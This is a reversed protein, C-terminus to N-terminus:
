RNRSLLGYELSQSIKGNNQNLFPFIDEDSILTQEKLNVAAENDTEEITKEDLIKNTDDRIETIEEVIINNFIEDSEAIKLDDLSKDNEIVSNFNELEVKISLNGRIESNGNQTMVLCNKIKM